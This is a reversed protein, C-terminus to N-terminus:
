IGTAMTPHIYGNGNRVRFDLVGAGIISRYPPFYPAAPKRKKFQM